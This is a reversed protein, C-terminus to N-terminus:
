AIKPPPRSFDLRLRGAPLARRRSIKPARPPKPPKPPPPPGLPDLTSVGLIRAIPRLTRILGPAEALLAATNPDQLLARLQSGYGAVEWGLRRVLWLPASPLRLVPKRTAPRPRGPRPHHRRSRRGAALRSALRTARQVAFACRRWLVLPIHALTPHNSLRRGVIERLAFLILTLRRLFEPAYARVQEPVPARRM